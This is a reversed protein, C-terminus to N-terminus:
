FWKKISNQKNKMSTNKSGFIVTYHGRLLKNMKCNVFYNSSNTDIDDGFQSTLTTSRWILSMVNKGDYSISQLKM